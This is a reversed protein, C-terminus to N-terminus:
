SGNDREEFITLNRITVSMDGLIEVTWNGPFVEVDAHEEPVAFVRARLGVIYRFIFHGPYRARYSAASTM